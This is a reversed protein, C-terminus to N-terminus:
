QGMSEKLNFVKALGPDENVLQRIAGEIEETTMDKADKHTIELKAKAGFGGRDLIDQAAKLRIGGKEAQDNMIQLVVRLATPVHTGIHESLYQQIFEHNQRYYKNANARCNHDSYGAAIYAKERSLGNALGECFLELKDRKSLPASIDVVEGM